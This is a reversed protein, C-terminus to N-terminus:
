KFGFWPDDPYRGSRDIAAISPNRESDESGLSNQHWTILVKRLAIKWVGDRKEMRDLYRGFYTMEMDPEDKQAHYHRATVYSEVRASSDSIEILPNSVAHQTSKYRNIADPLSECFPHAPGQYAGADIHADPWYCSKLIDSSGRDIGRSNTAVVEMIALRDAVEDADPVRGIENM